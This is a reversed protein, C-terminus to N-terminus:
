KGFMVKGWNNHQEPPPRRRRAAPSSRALRPWTGGCVFADAVGRRLRRCDDRLQPRRRKWKGPLTRGVRWRAGLGEVVEDFRYTSKM